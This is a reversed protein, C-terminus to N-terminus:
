SQSRSVSFCITSFSLRFSLVMLFRSFSFSLSWFPSVSFLCSLFLFTSLYFLSHSIIICPPPLFFSPSLFLLLFFSLPFFSCVLPLCFYFYLSLFPFISCLLSLSLSKVLLSGSPPGSTPAWAAPEGPTRVWSLCGLRSASPPRSLPGRCVGQGVQCCLSKLPGRPASPMQCAM